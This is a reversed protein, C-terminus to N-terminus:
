IKHKEDISNQFSPMNNTNGTPFAGLREVNANINLEEDPFCLEDLVDM